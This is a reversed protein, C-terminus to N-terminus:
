LPTSLTHFHSVSATKWALIEFSYHLSAFTNVFINFYHCFVVKDRVAEMMIPPEEEKQQKDMTNQNLDNGAM